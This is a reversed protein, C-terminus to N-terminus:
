AHFAVAALSKGNRGDPRQQNVARNKRLHELGDGRHRLADDGCQEIADAFDCANLLLRFLECGQALQGPIERMLEIIGCRGRLAGGCGQERGQAAVPAIADLEDRKAESFLLHLPDHLPLLLNERSGTLRELRRGFCISQPENAELFGEAGPEVSDAAAIGPFYRRLQGLLEYGSRIEILQVCEEAGALTADDQLIERAIQAGRTRGFGDDVGCSTNVVENSGDLVVGVHVAGRNELDVYCGAQVGCQM